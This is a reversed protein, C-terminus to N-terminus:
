NGLLRKYREPDLLPEGQEAMLKQNPDMPNDIPRCGSM